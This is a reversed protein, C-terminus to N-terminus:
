NKRNKGERYKNNSELYKKLKTFVQSRMSIKNKEERDMEAFTANFSNPKFIPDFGFNTKVAPPVIIGKIRGEFYKINKNEDVYGICARAEANFNNYKKTLNYIERVGLAKLFWKILPGPLGNMCDLCLSVDEIVFKSNEYKLAERLKAKVIKRSDIDQIEPLDINLQKLEPIIAKAEDFKNKNGTIFYLEM